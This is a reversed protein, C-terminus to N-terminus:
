KGTVFKEEPLWINEYLIEGSADKRITVKYKDGAQDLIEATYAEKKIQCSRKEGILPFGKLIELEDTRFSIM